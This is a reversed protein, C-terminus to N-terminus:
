PGDTEDPEWTDRRPRWPPVAQRYAEYQPGFRRALAPEEYWHVFGAFLVGLAVAYAFLWPRTLALAQGAVTAVVAIYMPNRVRRYLGGVVLRETPAAPSPTGAGEAVFRVFAPILVALGALILAAGLIRVPAWYPPRRVRWGTL